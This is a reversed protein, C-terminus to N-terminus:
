PSPRRRRGGSSRGAERRRSRGGGSSTTPKILWSVVEEWTPVNRYSSTAADTTEDPEGDDFDQGTDESESVDPEVDAWDDDTENREATERTQATGPRKRRSTPSRGEEEDDDESVADSPQPAEDSPARTRGGRGGRRRRRRTDRGGPKREDSAEETPGEGTPDEDKSDIGMGFDDDDNFQNLRDETRTDARRSDPRDASTEEFEDEDDTDDADKDDFETEDRSAKTANRGAERSDSREWHDLADWYTDDDDQTSRDAPETPATSPESESVDGVKAANGAKAAPEHDTDFIVSDLVGVSNAADDSSVSDIVEADVDAAAEEDSISDEVASSAAGPEDGYEEFLQDDNRIDDVEQSFDVGFLNKALDEWSEGDKQADKGKPTRSM